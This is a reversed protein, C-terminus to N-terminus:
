DTGHPQLPTRETTHNSDNLPATSAHRAPNAPPPHTPFTSPLPWLRRAAPTRAQPLRRPASRSPAASQSVKWKSCQTPTKHRHAREALRTSRRPNPTGHSSHPPPTTAPSRPSQHRRPEAPKAVRAHGPDSPFSARQKQKHTPSDADENATSKPPAHATQDSRADRRLQSSSRAPPRAAAPPNAGAPSSNNAERRSAYSRRRSPPQYEM